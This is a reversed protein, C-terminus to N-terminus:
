KMFKIVTDILNDVSEAEANDQVAANKICDKAYNELIIGGVKNIAARVAAIQILVENCGENSDIMKQIGRIQGEIRNLRKRIDSKISNSGM